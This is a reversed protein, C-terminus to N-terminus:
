AFEEQSIHAGQWARIAQEAFLAAWTPAHQHGASFPLRGSCQVSAVLRDYVRAWRPQNRVPWDLILAARLAQAFVDNRAPGSGRSERLHEIGGHADLLAQLVNGALEFEDLLLLGEIAYLQPHAEDHPATITLPVMAEIAGAALPRIPSAHRIRALAKLLFPGDQGSWRNPARGLVSSLRDADVFSALADTVRARLSHASTSARSEAWRGVGHWLMAHDFLYRAGLHDCPPAGTRTPWTETDEQQATLWSIVAEGADIGVAPHDAAWGLWYGAIEPYGFEAANGNFRGVAGRPLSGFMGGALDSHLAALADFTTSSSYIM